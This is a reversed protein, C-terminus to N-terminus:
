HDRERIFEEVQKQSRQLKQMIQRNREKVAYNGDAKRSSMHAFIQRKVNKHQEFQKKGYEYMGKLKYHTKKDSAAADEKVKLDTEIQM